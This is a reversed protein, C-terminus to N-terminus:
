LKGRESLLKLWDERTLPCEALLRAENPRLSLDRPIHDHGSDKRSGRRIGFQAVLKEEHYVRALDHAKRSATVQAGLKRVIRLALEKTIVAM